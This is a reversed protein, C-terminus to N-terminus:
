CGLHRTSMIRKKEKWVRKALTYLDAYKQKDVLDVVVQYFGEDESDIIHPLVRDAQEKTLNISWFVEEIPSLINKCSTTLWGVVEGDFMVTQVGKNPKIMKTEGFTMRKM